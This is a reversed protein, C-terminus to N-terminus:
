KPFFGNSFRRNELRNAIAFSLEMAQEYNLRPDCLSEYATDLDAEEVGSAGGLCETVNEATLEVHIGGLHSGCSEHIDISMMIEHLIDGFRRTKIGSASTITNGHMPDSLWVAKHGSKQVAQLMPPLREEVHERGFRGVLILRGAERDPDLIDLVECIADPEATPGVKMGVPNKIGRFFEVHAEEPSRTREGIWPLHCSLDYYGRRRPVQRTLASEYPLSLGEHSTFLEVMGLQDIKRETISEMVEIANALAMIRRQYSERQEDRLGAKDLFHLNWYEPHHFDAFGSAVLSRIFNLSMASHYFAEMLREPKPERAEPTFEMSNVSDGFYSPLEVGDITETPKSRPKMFQGAIRGIRIVPMKLGDILVLSMQLLIKLKAAIYEPTCQAFSEACDGGQLIFRRGEYADNLLRRLRNIEWSNVLPPMSHLRLVVAELEDKDPYDPVQRIPKNKWSNPSWDQPIANEQEM